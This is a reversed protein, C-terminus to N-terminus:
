YFLKGSKHKVLVQLALCAQVKVPLEPDKICDIVGQFAIGLNVENEFKMIGFKLVM